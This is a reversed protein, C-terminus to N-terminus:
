PTWGCWGVAGLVQAYSLNRHPVTEALMEWLIAGCSFVDAAPSVAENRLAEPAAWHPTGCRHHPAPHARVAAHGFDCIKPVLKSSSTHNILINSSKLDAHVLRKLHMYGMGACMGESLDMVSLM